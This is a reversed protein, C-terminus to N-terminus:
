ILRTLDKILKKTQRVTISEKGIRVKCKVIKSDHTIYFKEDKKKINVFYRKGKELTSTHATTFYTGHSNYGKEVCLYIYKQNELERLGNTNEYLVKCKYTLNTNQGEIKELTEGVVEIQFISKSVLYNYVLNPAIEEKITKKILDRNPNNFSEIKEVRVGLKWLNEINYNSRIDLEFCIKAFEEFTRLSSQGNLSCLSIM